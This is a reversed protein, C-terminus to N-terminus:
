PVRFVFGENLDHILVKDKGRWKSLIAEIKEKANM